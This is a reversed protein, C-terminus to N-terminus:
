ADKIYAKRLILETETLATEIYQNITKAYICALLWKRIDKVTIKKDDTGTFIDWIAPFIDNSLYDIVAYDTLCEYAKRQEDVSGTAIIKDVQNEEYNKVRFNLKDAQHRQMARFADKRNKLHKPLWITRICDETKKQNIKDIVSALVDFFECVYINYMKPSNMTAILRDVMTKVQEKDTKSQSLNNLTFLSRGHLNVYINLLMVFEIFNVGKRKDEPYYPYYKVIVDYAPTVGDCCAMEKMQSISIMNEIHKYGAMEATSNYLKIQSELMFTDYIKPKDNLFEAGSKTYTEKCLRNFIRRLRRNSKIYEETPFGEPLEGIAGNALDQEYEYRYGEYCLDPLSVCGTFTLKQITTQFIEKMISHLKELEINNSLM